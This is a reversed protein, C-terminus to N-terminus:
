PAPPSAPVPKETTPFLWKRVHDTVAKLRSDDVRERYHGAMSHDAHGMIIDIAVRDPVEDAITRFIHRFTYPGLGERHVGVAKMLAVAVVTIPHATSGSIWQRGRATIFVLKEAGSQRPEPKAAIAARIAAVTEPWLPCRRAIGTKPRPYNIWGSDLNLATIPLMACDTPGYGCNLGLLIMARLQPSPPLTIAIPEGTEENIASLHVEKGTLADLMLNLAAAELMKEGSKARHRRLISKDPKRFESGYRVAKEILGNDLGYKFVSKVRTIANGLRVPGWRKTLDARLREFDAAALNDVLRSSGFAEILLDTSQKYDEFARQGLEGGDLKRQKATLFRNCLAGVSLGQQNGDKDRPVRGAYLDDRQVQFLELAEKWGDGEVRALKGAVVHGWRGFHHQKGRIKKTWYGLPHAFLPFDPYPKKPRDSAKRSRRKAISKSM